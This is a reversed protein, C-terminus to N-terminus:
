ENGTEGRIKEYEYMLQLLNHQGALEGSSPNETILQALPALKDSEKATEIQLDKWHESNLNDVNKLNASWLDKFSDLWKKEAETIQIEGGLTSWEKVYVDLEDTNIRNAISTAEEKTEALGLLLFFEDSRQWVLTPIGINTFNEAWNEANELKSFLGAQLVYGKLPELTFTKTNDTTGASSENTEKDSQDPQGQVPLRDLGEGKSEVDLLFQFMVVSLVAGIIVASSVAFFIPKFLSHKRKNKLPVERISSKEVVQLPEDSEHLTAAVERKTSTYSSKPRKNIIKGNEKIIIPNEKDM